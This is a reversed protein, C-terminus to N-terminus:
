HKHIIIYLTGHYKVHSLCYVCRSCVSSYHDTEVFVFFNGLDDENLMVSTASTYGDNPDLYRRQRILRVRRRDSGDTNRSIFIADYWNPRRTTINGSNIVTWSLEFEDGSYAYSPISLSSVVLDVFSRTEFGWIPSPVSTNASLSYMIQWLLRTGSPYPELPRYYRTTVEATNNHPRPSGFRWVFVKYSYAGTYQPWNLSQYIEVNTEGNMPRDPYQPELVRITQQFSSTMGCDDALSWTRVFSFGCRNVESSDAYTINVLRDCPHSVVFDNHLEYAADLIERVSGCPINATTSAVVNLPRPNIFSIIQTEMAVNDADDFASWIRHVRCGAAPVDRYSVSVMLDINDMAVPSGTTNTSYDEGCIVNVDAISSLM